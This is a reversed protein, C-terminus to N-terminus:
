YMMLLWKEQCKNLSLKLNTSEHFFDLLIAHIDETTRLKPYDKDQLMTFLLTMIPNKGTFHTLLSSINLVLSTCMECLYLKISRLEKRHSTFEELYSGKVKHQFMFPM